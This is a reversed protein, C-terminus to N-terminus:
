IRENEGRVKRPARVRVRERPKTFFEKVALRLVASEGCEYESAYARVRAALELSLKTAFTEPYLM